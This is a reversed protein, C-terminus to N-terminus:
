IRTIKTWINDNQLIRKDFYYSAGSKTQEYTVLELGKQRFGVNTVNMDGEDHLMNYWNEISSKGSNELKDNQIGKSSVWSDTEGWIKYFKPQLFIGTHGFKELGCLGPKRNGMQAITVPYTKGNFEIDKWKNSPLQTDPRWKHVNAKYHDLLEPKVMNIFDTESASYVINDTDTYGLVISPLGVLPAPDTYFFLFDTFPCGVDHSM